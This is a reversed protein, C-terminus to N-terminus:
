SLAEMQDILANAAVECEACYHVDAPIYTGVEDLPFEGGCVVCAVRLASAVQCLQEPTLYIPFREQSDDFQM